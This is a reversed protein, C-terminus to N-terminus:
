ETRPLAFAKSGPANKWRYGRALADLRMTKQGEATDVIAILDPVADAPHRLDGTASILV